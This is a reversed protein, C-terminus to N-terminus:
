GGGTAGRGERGEDEWVNEECHSARYEDERERDEDRSARDGAERFNEEGGGELMFCIAARIFSPAKRLADM